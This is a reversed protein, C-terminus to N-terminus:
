WNGPKTTLPLVGLWTSTLEFGAQYKECEDTKIKTIKKLFSQFNVFFLGPIASMQPKAMAVAKLKFYKIIHAMPATSSLLYTWLLQILWILGEVFTLLGWANAWALLKGLVCKSAAKQAYCTLKRAASHGLFRNLKMCLKFHKQGSECEKKSKRNIEMECNLSM